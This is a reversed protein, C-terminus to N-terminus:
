LDPESQIKIRRRLQRIEEMRSPYFGPRIMDASEAGELVGLAADELGASALMVTKKLYIDVTPTFDIAKDLSRVSSDLNGIRAFFDSKLSYYRAARTANWVKADAAEIHSFVRQLSIPYELNECVWGNGDKDLAILDEVAQVVGMEFHNANILAKAAEDLRHELDFECILRIKKLHLGIAEPRLEIAQDIHEVSNEQFTKQELISAYVVKARASEPEDMEWKLFLRDPKAWTLSLLFLSSSLYLIGAVLVGRRLFVDKSIKEFLTNATAVIFLILGIGPLYNRHEFYTELPYFTSEFIHFIFFWSLGLVALWRKWRISTVLIMLFSVTVFSRLYDTYTFERGSIVEYEGSFLNFDSVRPLVIKLIYDGMIPFQYKVREYLGFERREYGQAWWGSSLFIIALSVAIVLFIHRRILSAINKCVSKNFYFTELFVIFPVLLMANEKSFFGFFLFVASLFFFLVQLSM